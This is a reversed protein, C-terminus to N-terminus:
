HCDSLSAQVDQNRHNGVASLSERRPPRLVVYAMGYKKKTEETMMEMGREHHSMQLTVINSSPVATLKWHYWSQNLDDNFRYNSPIFYDVSVEGLCLTPV